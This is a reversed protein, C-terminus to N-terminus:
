GHTGNNRLVPLSPSRGLWDQVMRNLLGPTVSCVLVSPYVASQWTPHLIISCGGQTESTYGLCYRVVAVDDLQLSGPQSLFPLGTRPDFLDALHGQAQLTCVLPTGWQLFRDRLEDKEQKTEITLPLLSCRAPQLVVLVSAVPLSWDPLLHSSHNRIFDSPPHISYQM